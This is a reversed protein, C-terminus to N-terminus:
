PLVDELENGADEWKDYKDWDIFREEGEEEKKMKLARIAPFKEDLAGWLEEPSPICSGNPSIDAHSPPYAEYLRAMARQFRIEGLGVPSYGDGSDTRLYVTVRGDMGMYPGFLACLMDEASENDFSRCNLYFDVAVDPLYGISMHDHKEYLEFIDIRQRHSDYYMNRSSFIDMYNECRRPVDEGDFLLFMDTFDSKYLSITLKM